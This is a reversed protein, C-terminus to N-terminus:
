LNKDLLIRLGLFPDDFTILTISNDNHEESNKNCMSFENILGNESYDGGPWLLHCGRQVKICPHVFNRAQSPPIIGFTNFAHLFGEFFM